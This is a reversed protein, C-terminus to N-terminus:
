EGQVKLFRASGRAVAEGGSNLVEGQVALVRGKVERVEGNIRVLQGVEVPKLFRVTLEMTVAAGERSICAHAMVEDLLTALLGGHALRRWGSFHEPITCSAEARGPQPYAFDLRLGLENKKGCVFCHDDRIVEQEM